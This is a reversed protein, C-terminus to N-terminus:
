QVSLVKLCVRRCSIALMCVNLLDMSVCMECDNIVHTQNQTDASVTLPLPHPPNCISLYM